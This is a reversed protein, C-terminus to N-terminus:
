CDLTTASDRLAHCAVRHGLSTCIRVAVDIPEESLRMVRDALIVRASLEPHNSLLNAVISMVFMRGFLAPATVVLQGRPSTDDERVARAADDLEALARRSRALYEAGKRTM